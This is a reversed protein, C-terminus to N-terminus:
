SKVKATFADRYSATLSLKLQQASSDQLNYTIWDHTYAVVNGLAVITKRNIRCFNSSPLVHLLEEFSVNKLLVEQGQNLIVRKDRRDSEANTILSIDNFHLLIRGINSNFEASGMNASLSDLWARAKVFAKELRELQYPKRLYDVAELDFADAAYERYATSFIVAKGVLHKALELGNMRPMEIDLVCVDFDLEHAEALMKEPDNYVKVVQVDPLQRCLTRLYTLGPLEDDVLICKLTKM